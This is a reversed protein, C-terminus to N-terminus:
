KRHNEITGIIIGTLFASLHNLNNINPSLATIATSIILFILWLTYKRKDTITMKKGKLTLIIYIAILTYIMGSAGVTPTPHTSPFSAILAATYAYIFLLVPNIIKKLITFFSLYSITNLTLHLLNAHQFMYCFHTYLPSTDSYGLPLRSIYVLLFIFPIAYNM